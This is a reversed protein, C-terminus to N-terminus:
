RRGVDDRHGVLLDPSTPGESRKQTPVSGHQAQRSRSKAPLRRRLIEDYRDVAHELAYKEAVFRRAQLGMEQLRARDGAIALVTASLTDIDGPPVLFGTVGDDITESTGGVAYAVSPLAAAAAELVVGPLGETESTLILLDAWQMHEEVDDVSRLFTVLSDLGLAKTRRGLEILLPGEGVFRGRVPIQSSLFKTLTLVAFPNKERSLSGVFLLRLEHHDDDARTLEFFSKPVGTPAVTIKDDSLGVVEILQRRTAQSVAVVLDTRSMLARQLIRRAAGRIWYTPEGISAYVVRVRPKVLGSAAIAYQLTSSGNALVMGAGLRQLTRRLERVVGLDLRGLQAPTRDDVVEADVAPGSPDHSLAVLHADWGRERLGVTLREGFVEAGRRRDTTILVVLSPRGTRTPRRRAGWGVRRRWQPFAFLARGALQLRRVPSDNLLVIALNLPHPRHGDFRVLDIKPLLREAIAVPSTRLRLNGLVDAPIPADTARAAMLLALYTTSRLGWTQAFRGIADWDPDRLAVETLDRFLILRFRHDLLAHTCLFNVRAAEPLRWMTGLKTRSPGEAADWAWETAGDAAGQLQSYSFLDWHLDLTFHVGSPDAMPINRKDAKPGRPPISRVMPDEQLVEIAKPLDVPHVLVDIDTFTRQGTVRYVWRDIVPGKLITARVHAGALAELVRSVHKEMVQQRAVLRSYIPLVQDRIPPTENVLLGLLGHHHALELANDPLPSAISVPRGAAVDLLVRATTDGTRWPPATRPARVVTM